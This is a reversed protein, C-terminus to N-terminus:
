VAQESISLKLRRAQEQLAAEAMMDALVQRDLGVARADQPSLQRGFQGSARQLDRTFRDRFTEVPIDTDGVSALTNTTGGRFVDEVGWVAFSIVILGLLLKMIIGASKTRLTNLM